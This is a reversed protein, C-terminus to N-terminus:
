RFQQLRQAVSGPLAVAFDLEAKASFTFMRSYAECMGSEVTQPCQGTLLLKSSQAGGRKTKKQRDFGSLVNM